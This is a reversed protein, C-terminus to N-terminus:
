KNQGRICIIMKLVFGLDLHSPSSPEKAAKPKLSPRLHAAFTGSLLPLILQSKKNASFLQYEDSKNLM